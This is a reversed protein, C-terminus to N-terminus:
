YFSLSSISEIETVESLVHLADRLVISFLLQQLSYELRACMSNRCVISKESM